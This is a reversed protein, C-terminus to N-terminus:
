EFFPTIKEFDYSHIVMKGEREDVIDDSLIVDADDPTDVVETAMMEFFDALNIVDNQTFYKFLYNFGNEGAIISNSNIPCNLWVMENSKLDIAFLCAYTSPCNIEFSTQVTKPEFIEGSDDIDRLMYGAKCVVQSFNVASYVNNCFVLYRIAPHKRKFTAVDVDFFESGGKYGSTQDGSFTIEKSQKGYMSRWSYEEFDGNKKLGIASLDIDDVKEWYTFARIKKCHAIPLRTGKALVGFGSSGASEQLPLASNCMSPAVYVKGLKNKLKQQLLKKIVKVVRKATSPTVHSKRSAVEEETEDHTVVMNFRVFKFARANQSDDFNSYNILLQLLAIVNNSDLQSLLFDVDNANTCRSLIYNLNRLLTTNGKTQQLYTVADKIEGKQMLSEFVAYASRNGKTRMAGIFNKALDSQPKYHIHHLLGCWLAQRQYCDITNVACNEFAFDLLRTVFKRHYNQLNLKKINTKGYKEFNLQEVVKLIDSLQLDKAFSIDELAVILKILTNKSQCHTVKYGYTKICDVVIELQGESLPRSSNLMDTVSQFIIEQAQQETIVEFEKIDVDEKFALREFDQEFLSHGPNDFCGFGYTVTYHVLQDFLLQDSTLQLVSQPFNKYFAQPVYEGLQKAVFQVHNTTVLEQGKIVKVGFLNALSFLAEFTNEVSTDCVLYHKAFLFQKFSDKM